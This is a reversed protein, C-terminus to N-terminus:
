YGRSVWYKTRKNSFIQLIFSMIHAIYKNNTTYYVKSHKGNYYIFKNINYKKMILIQQM